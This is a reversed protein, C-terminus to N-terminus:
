SRKLDRYGLVLTAIPGLAAIGMLPGFLIFSAVAVGSAIAILLGLTSNTPVVAPSAIPQYSDSRVSSLYSYDMVSVPVRSLIHGNGSDTSAELSSLLDPFSESGTGAPLDVPMEHEKTGGSDNSAGVTGLLSVCGTPSPNEAAVAITDM